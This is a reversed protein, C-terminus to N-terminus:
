LIFPISHQKRELKSSASALKWTKYVNNEHVDDEDKETTGKLHYRPHTDTMPHIKQSYSLWWPRQDQQSVFDRHSALASHTHPPHLPPPFAVEYVPRTSWIRLSGYILCSSTKGAEVIPIPVWILMTSLSPPNPNSGHRFLICTSSCSLPQRIKFAFSYKASQLVSLNHIM